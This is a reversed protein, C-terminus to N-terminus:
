NRAAFSRLVSANEAFGGAFDISCVTGYRAHPGLAAGAYNFDPNFINHRHGRSRVGDDIILALVIDRPSSEGYAINEGWRGRWIGHRSIRDAPSSHDPGSHGLAGRRRSPSM